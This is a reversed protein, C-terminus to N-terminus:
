PLIKGGHAPGGERDVRALFRLVEASFREPQALHVLHGGDPIVVKSAGTVGYALADAVIQRYTIEHDGIILLTPVKIEALQDMRPGAKGSSPPQKGENRTRNETFMPRYRSMVDPRDPPMWPAEAPTDNRRVLGFGDPAPPGYLILASVRAPFALAFALAVGAGQSHGLIYASPIGLHTLLQDLDNPDASTDPEGASKGWGRRDYRLVRYQRALTGIHEDWTRMDNNLGHILVLPTGQGVIEFRLRVGTLSAYQDEGWCPAVALCLLGALCAARRLARGAEPM